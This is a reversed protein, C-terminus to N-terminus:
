PLLARQIVGARHLDARLNDSQERLLRYAEELDEVHERLRENSEQLEWHLRDREALLRQHALANRVSNRVPEPGNLPKELFDFAGFQLAKVATDFTGYGTLVIWASGPCHEQSWQMLSLGGEEPMSLDTIVVDYRRQALSARADAASSAQDIRRADGESLLLVLLRRFDEDDDVVLVKPGDRLIQGERPEV